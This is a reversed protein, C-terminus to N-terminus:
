CFSCDHVGKHCWVPCWLYCLRVAWNVWFTGFFFKALGDPGVLLILLTSYYLTLLLASVSSIFARMGVSQAVWIVYILTAM